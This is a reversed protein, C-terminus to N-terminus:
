KEWRKFNPKVITTPSIKIKAKRDDMLVWQLTLMSYWARDQDIESTSKLKMLKRLKKIENAINKKNKM